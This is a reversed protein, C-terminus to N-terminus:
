VQKQKEARGKKESLKKNKRSQRKEFLKKNEERDRKESLKKNKQEAEKKLSNKTKEARGKEPCTETKEPDTKIKRHRKINGTLDPSSPKTVHSMDEWVGKLKGSLALKGLKESVEPSVKAPIENEYPTGPLPTLYHARVEGGRRCIEDILELTKEQDEATETPFGTIFDVIPTIGHSFCIDLAIRVDESTHGRGIEKLIADSGSQAGISLSDNDAYKVLIDMLEDSVFDPRVESPFTGFFIRKRDCDDSSPSLESLSSLLSEVRDPEAKLGNSGYAFANSTIFRLDDYYAAYKVIEPISRHRMKRGFLRPTQCYRCGHPCGRSIELPRWMGDPCFCPFRDLDAYPRRETRICDNGTGSCSEYGPGNKRFAIGRIGSLMEADPLRGAAMERKVLAILEPLTEEGEGVVVADFVDASDEPAGSPHPGGAIFYVPRGEKGSRRRAETVERFLAEKQNTFISYVMIGPRPEDTLDAEPVVPALASFSYSNKKLFRFHVPIGAGDNAASLGDPKESGPVSM